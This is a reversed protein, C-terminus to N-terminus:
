FISMPMRILLAPRAPAPWYKLHVGCDIRSMKYVLQVDTTNSLLAIMGIISFLLCRLAMILKEELVPRNMDGSKLEYGAEFRIILM